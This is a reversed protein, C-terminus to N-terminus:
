GTRRESEDSRAHEREEADEVKGVERRVHVPTHQLIKGAVDQFVASYERLFREIFEDEYEDIEDAAQPYSITPPWAKEYRVSYVFHSADFKVLEKSDGFATDLFDEVIMEHTLATDVDSAQQSNDAALAACSASVWAMAAIFARCIGPGMLSRMFM